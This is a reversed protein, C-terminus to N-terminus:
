KLVECKEVELKYEVRGDPYTTTDLRICAIRHGDAESDARQKSDHHFECAYINTWERVVVPKPTLAAVQAELEAVRYTLVQIVTELINIHYDSM